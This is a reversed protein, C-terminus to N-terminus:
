PRIRTRGAHDSFPGARCEIAEPAIGSEICVLLLHDALSAWTSWAIM